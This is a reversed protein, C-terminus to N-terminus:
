IHSRDVMMDDDKSGRVWRRTGGPLTLVLKSTRGVGKALSGPKEKDLFIIAYVAVLWQENDAARV